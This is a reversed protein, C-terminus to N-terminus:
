VSTVARKNPSAISLTCPSRGLSLSVRALSGQSMGVHGQSAEKPCRPLTKTVTKPILIYASSCDKLEFIYDEIIISSLLQVLTLLELLGSVM